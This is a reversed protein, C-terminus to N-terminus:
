VQCLRGGSDIFERFLKNVQDTHAQYDTMLADLAPREASDRYGLRGACARLEHSESPISHTQFDQVMQLKNEVDRLFVYANRLVAHEEGSLLGAKNAAELARLTSRKRLARSHGFSAQLAQVILEIERIGGVGLKVNRRQQGRAAVKRDIQTKINRIQRRANEDFPRGYSFASATSLFRKGTARDGAVPCAKIMALREWPEGRTRFYTHVEKLSHAIKGM